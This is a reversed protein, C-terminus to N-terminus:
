LNSQVVASLRRDLLLALDKVLTREEVEYALAGVIVLAATRGRRFAIAETEVAMSWNELEGDIRFGRAIEGIEEIKALEKVQNVKVKGLGSLSKKLGLVFIESSDSRRLGLDFAKLSQSNSLHATLGVVIEARELDIFATVQELDVGQRNLEPNLAAIGKVILGQVFSPARDFGAPLDGVKLSAREERQGGIRGDSPTALTIGTLNATLSFCIGLFVVLLFTLRSM